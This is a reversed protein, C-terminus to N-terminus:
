SLIIHVMGTASKRSGHSRTSTSSQIEGLLGLIEGCFKDVEVHISDLEKEIEMTSMMRLSTVLLEHKLDTMRQKMAGVNQLYERCNTLLVSMLAQIENVEATLADQDKDPRVRCLIEVESSGISVTGRDLRFAGSDPIYDWQTFVRDKWETMCALIATEPGDSLGLRAKFQRLSEDIATKRRLVESEFYDRATVVLQDAETIGTPSMSLRTYDEPLYKFCRTPPPLSPTSTAEPQSHPEMPPAEPQSGMEQDEDVTQLGPGDRVM